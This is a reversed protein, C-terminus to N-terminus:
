SVSLRSCHHFSEAGSRVRLSVRGPLFLHPEYSLTKFDGTSSLLYHGSGATSSFWVKNVKCAQQEPHPWKPRKQPAKSWGPKPKARVEPQFGPASGDARCPKSLNLAEAASHQGGSTLETPDRSTQCMTVPLGSASWKPSGQSSVRELFITHPLM